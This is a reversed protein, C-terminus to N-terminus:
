ASAIERMRDLEDTPIDEGGWFIRSLISLIEERKNVDDKVNDLIHMVEDYDTEDDEFSEFPLNPFDVKPMDTTEHIKQLIRYLKDYSGKPIVDIQKQDKDGLKEEYNQLSSSIVNAISCGMYVAELQKWMDIYKGVAKRYQKKMKINNQTLVGALKNLLKALEWVYAEKQGRDGAKKCCGITRCIIARLFMSIYTEVCPAYRCLYILSDREKIEYLSNIMYIAPISQIVNMLGISSLEHLKVLQGLKEKEDPFHRNHFLKDCYVDRETPAQTCFYKESLRNQLNQFYVREGAFCMAIQDEESLLKRLLGAQEKDMCISKGDWCKLSDCESRENEDAFMVNYLVPMCDEIKQEGMM